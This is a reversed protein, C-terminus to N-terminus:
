DNKEKGRMKVYKQNVDYFAQLAKQLKVMDSKPISNWFDEDVASDSVDLMYCTYSIARERVMPVVKDKM